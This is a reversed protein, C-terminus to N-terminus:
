LDADRNMADIEAGHDADGLEAGHIMAGVELWHWTALWVLGSKWGRCWLRHRWSTDGRHRLGRRRALPGFIPKKALPIFTFNQRFFALNFLIRCM